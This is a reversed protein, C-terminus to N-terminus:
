ATSKIFAHYRGIAGKLTPTSNYARHTNTVYWTKGGVVSKWVAPTASKLHSFHWVAKRKMVESREDPELDVKHKKLTKFDPGQVKYEGIFHPGEGPCADIMRNTFRREEDTPEPLRIPKSCARHTFSGEDEDWFLGGREAIEDHCHPCRWVDDRRVRQQVIVESEAIPTTRDPNHGWCRLLLMRETPAGDADLLPGSQHLLKQVTNIQRGAWNWQEETWEEPRKARMALLRKSSKQGLHFARFGGVSISTTAEHTRQFERVENTRMNIVRKWKAYREAQEHTLKPREVREHIDRPQYGDLHPLFQPFGDSVWAEFPLELDRDCWELFVEHVTDPEIAEAAALGMMRRFVGMKLAYWDDSEPKVKPYNKTTVSGAKEWRRYAEKVSMGTKAAWKKVVAPPNDASESTLKTVSKGKEWFKCAWYRAKWKPGPDDCGHRARFNARRGDDDRKIELNPDGFTVRVVNGKDNRVYVQFKKKGHGPDGKGIRTPNNLTVSKGQFDAKADGEALALLTADEDISEEPEDKKGKPEPEPDAGPEGDVKVEDEDGEDGGGAAVKAVEPKESAPREVVGPSRVEGTPTVTVKKIKFKRKLKTLAKPEDMGQTMLMDWYVQLDERYFEPEDMRDTTEPEDEDDAKPPPAKEVLGLATARMSTNAKVAADRVQLASEDLRAVPLVAAANSAPTGECAGLEALAHELVRDREHPLDPYCAALGELLETVEALDVDGLAWVGREAVIVVESPGGAVPSELVAWSGTHSRMVGEVTMDAYTVGKQRPLLRWSDCVEGQDVTAHFLVCHGAEFWKCNGCRKSDSAKRLSPIDARSEGVSQYPRARVLRKPNAQPPTVSVDAAAGQEPEPLKVGKAPVCEFITLDSRQMTEQNVQGALVIPEISRLFDGTNGRLKTMDSEGLKGDFIALFKGKEVVTEVFREFMADGRARLWAEFMLAAIGEPTRSFVSERALFQKAFERATKTHDDGLAAATEMVLDVFERSHSSLDESVGARSAWLAFLSQYLGEGAVAESAAKRRLADRRRRPTLRYSSPTQMRPTAAPM